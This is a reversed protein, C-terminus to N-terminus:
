KKAPAGKAPAAAMTPKGAMTAGAPAQANASAASAGNAGASAAAPAMPKVGIGAKKLVEARITEVAKSNEKLWNRANERGQGIREDKYTYWTGSKEIINMNSALDLLDGEKSIGEGYIIDFEVEKFPPAMKNKVVKVRTRNGIVNEGDKIAAIRRIDMRVSSYYKLANGGTTTEPNGFMVGIKMRIQNIFIVLTKSRNITGTLKRLAQSMLRAQLGMHSDGMEGEIEARPVLAAVSDIVLLDIGGSRVLADAIELAQEGTDPQSILLDDTRVGLKRAYNVDLAHEADIFAAIGGLKQVEAIAHLTVTTKGSAEPGYVEIIRGRPLGGIGLALDLSLSGTPVAEIGQAVMNETEGLRMISGKGFQKEIAQVALEIAKNKQAHNANQNQIEV